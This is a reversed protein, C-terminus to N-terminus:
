QNIITSEVRRNYQTTDSKKEKKYGAGRTQIRDKKIGSKIIYDKVSEARRLSIDINAKYSGIGDSFGDLILLASENNRLYEILSHLYPIHNLRIESSNFNFYIYEPSFEAEISPEIKIEATHNKKEGLFFEVAFTKIGSEAPIVLIRKIDPGAKINILGSTDTIITEYNTPWSNKGLSKFYLIKIKIGDTKKYDTSDFKLTFLEPSTKLVDKGTKKIFFDYSGDIGGTNSATIVSDSSLETISIEDGTSNVPDKLGELEKIEGDSDNIFFIDRNKLDDKRFGAAFSGSRYISKKYM